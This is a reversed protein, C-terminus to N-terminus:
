RKEYVEDVGFESVTITNGDIKGKFSGLGLDITVNNGSVKYKVDSLSGYASMVCKGGEFFEYYNTDNDPSVYKGSLSSNGGCGAIIAVSLVIVLLLAIKKRM